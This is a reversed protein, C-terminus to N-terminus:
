SSPYKRPTGRLIASTTSRCSATGIVWRGRNLVPPRAMGRPPARGSNLGAGSAAMRSAYLRAALQREVLTSALATSGSTARSEAGRLNDGGRPRARTSHVCKKAVHKKWDDLTGSRGFRGLRVTPHRVILPGNQSPGNPGYSEGPLVFWKGCRGPVPTVRIDRDPKVISLAAIIQTRTGRNPPWVYGHDSLLKIFQESQATLVSAPVIEKKWNDRRDVFEIVTFASERPTKSNSTAYATVLIPAAVRTLSGESDAIYIGDKRFKIHGVAACKEGNRSM